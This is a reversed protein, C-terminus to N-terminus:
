INTECINHPIDTVRMFALYRHPLYYDADEQAAANGAAREGAFIVGV